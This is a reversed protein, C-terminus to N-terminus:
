RGSSARAHVLRRGQLEDNLGFLWMGKGALGHQLASRYPVPMLARRQGAELVAGPIQRRGYEALVCADAVDGYMEVADRFRASLTREPLEEVRPEIEINWAVATTQRRGTDALQEIARAAEQLEDRVPVAGAIQPLDVLSREIGVPVM